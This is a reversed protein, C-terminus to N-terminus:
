RSASASKEMGRYGNDIVKICKKMACQTIAARTTEIMAETQVM